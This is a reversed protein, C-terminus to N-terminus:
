YGFKIMYEKCSKEIKRIQEVNLKNKWQNKEGNRFFKEWSNAESFGYITEMEKMSNFSTTNLINKLKLNFHSVKINFNSEFFNKIDHIINEKDEIIDEYKIFLKPVNLNNNTWSKVHESWSSVFAKPIKNKPIKSFVGRNQWNICSYSNRLFEISKDISYNSFKSWSIM